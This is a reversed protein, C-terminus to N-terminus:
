THHDLHHDLQHKMNAHDVHHKINATVGRWLKLTIRQNHYHAPIYKGRIMLFYWIYIYVCVFVCVVVVMVSWIIDHQEEPFTGLTPRCEPSRQSCHRYWRWLRGAGRLDTNTVDGWKNKGLHYWIPILLNKDLLLVLLM